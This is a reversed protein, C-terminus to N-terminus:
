LYEGFNTLVCYAPFFDNNSCFKYLVIREPLFESDAHEILLYLELLSCLQFSDQLEEHVSVIWFAERTEKKLLM